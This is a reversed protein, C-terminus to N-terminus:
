FNGGHHGSLGDYGHDRDILGMLYLYRIDGQSYSSTEGPFRSISAGPTM